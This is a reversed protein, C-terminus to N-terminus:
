DSIYCPSRCFRGIVVVDSAVDAQGSAASISLAGDFDVSGHQYHANVPLLNKNIYDSHGSQTLLPCRM